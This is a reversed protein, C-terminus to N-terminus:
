LLIAPVTDPDLARLTQYLMGCYGPMLGTYFREQHTFMSKKIAAICRTVFQQYEAATLLEHKYASLAIELLGTNGHCLNPKNHQLYQELLPLIKKFASEGTAKLETLQQSMQLVALTYGGTNNCWYPKATEQYLDTQITQLLGYQEYLPVSPLGAQHICLHLAYLIGTIGHAMGHNRPFHRKDFFSAPFQAPLRQTITQYLRLLDRQNLLEDPLLPESYILAALYGLKGLAWDFETAFSLFDNLDRNKPTAAVYDEGKKLLAKIWDHYCDSKWLNAIRALTLVGGGLYGYFGGPQSQQHSLNGPMTTNHWYKELCRQAKTKFASDQMIVALYAYTLAFGLFGDYLTSDTVSPSASHDPFTHITPWGVIINEAPIELASLVNVLSQAHETLLQHLKKDNLSACKKVTITHEPNNQLGLTILNNNTAVPNAHDQLVYDSARAADFSADIMFLQLTLDRVCARQQLIYHVQAHSDRFIKLPITKGYGDLLQTTANDIWFTPICGQSLATVESDMLMAEFPHALKKLREIIFDHKKQPSSLLDPHNLASLIMAYDYTSRQIVRAKTSNTKNLLGLIEARNNLVFRYVTTFGQTFDHQYDLPNIGSPMNKQAAFVHQNSSIKIKKEGIGSILLSNIVSTQGGLNRLVSVDMSKQKEINCTRCPLMFQSLVYLPTSPPGDLKPSGIIPQFLTELDIIIPHEGNAILNEAHIDNGGLLYILALLGGMRQYFDALKNKPCPLQTVYEVWAYEKRKIMKFSKFSLTSKKTVFALVQMWIADNDCSRPKYFIKTTRNNDAQWTLTAVQNNNEHPDGSFSINALHFNGETLWQTTIAQYDHRIRELITQTFIKFHKFLLHLTNELVAYKKFLDNKEKQLVLLFYQFQEQATAGALYDMEQAANYELSLTLTIKNAIIPLLNKKIFQEAFHATVPIASQRILNTLFNEFDILEPILFSSFILPSTILDKSKFYDHWNIASTHQHTM